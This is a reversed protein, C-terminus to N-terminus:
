FSKSLSLSPGWSTDRSAASYLDWVVNVFNCKNHVGHIYPRTFVLSSSTRQTVAKIEKVYSRYPPKLLYNVTVPGIGTLTGCYYCACQQVVMSFVMSRFVSRYYMDEGREM